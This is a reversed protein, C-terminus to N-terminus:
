TTGAAQHQHRWQVMVLWTAFGLAPLPLEEDVEIEIRRSMIGEPRWSGIERRGEYLCMERRWASVARLEFDREGFEIDFRRYFANPRRAKAIVERRRLMEYTSKWMSVRRVELSEDEFKLTGAERWTRNTIDIIERRGQKLTYNWNWISQPFARYDSKKM